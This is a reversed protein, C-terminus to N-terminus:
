ASATSEVPRYIEIRDGDHLVQSLPKVNGHIGVKLQTLDLEPFRGLIGSVAIGDEITAGEPLHMEEVHQLDRTAYVISVNIRHRENFQALMTQFEAESLDSVAEGAEELAQRLTANVGDLEDQVEDVQGKLETLRARLRQSQEVLRKMDM